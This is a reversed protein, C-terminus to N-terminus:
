SAGPAPLLARLQEAQEATLPNASEVIKRIHYDVGTRSKGAAVGRRHRVEPDALKGSYGRGDGM